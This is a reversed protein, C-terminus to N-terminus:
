LTQYGRIRMGSHLGKLEPQLSQHAASERWAASAEATEFQLVMLIEGDDDSPRLLRASVFGEIESMPPVYKEDFFRRFSDTGSTPVEFRIHREIM